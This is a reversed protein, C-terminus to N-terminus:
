LPSPAPRVPFNTPRGEIASPPRALRLPAAHECLSSCSSRLYHLERQSTTLSNVPFRGHYPSVETPARVPPFRPYVPPLVVVRVVAHRTARPFFRPTKPCTRGPSPAVKNSCLFRWFKSYLHVFYHICPELTNKEVSKAYVRAL